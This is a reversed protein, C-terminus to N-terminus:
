RRGGAGREREKMGSSRKETGGSEGRTQVSKVSWNERRSPSVEMRTRREFEVYKKGCTEEVRRTDRELKRGAREGCVYDEIKNAKGKRIRYSREICACGTRKESKEIEGRSDFTKGEM